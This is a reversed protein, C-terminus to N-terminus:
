AAWPRLALAASAAIPPEAAMMLCCDTEMQGSFRPPPPPLVGLLGRCGPPDLIRLLGRCGPPALQLLLLKVGILVGMSSRSARLPAPSSAAM